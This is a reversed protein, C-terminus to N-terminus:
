MLVACYQLSSLTEKKVVEIIKINFLIYTEILGGNVTHARKNRCVNNLYAM